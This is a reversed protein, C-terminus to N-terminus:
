HLLYEQSAQLVVKTDNKYVFAIIASNQIMWEANVNYNYSKSKVDSATAQGDLIEEGWAGNIADRLVHNHVYFEIDQEGSPLSYDKQWSVVSDEVFYVSLMLNENMADIFIVDVDVELDRTNSNYSTNINIDIVPEQEILEVAAAIWYSQGLTLDGAYESRNIIASPYESPGFFESITNGDETKYDYTYEGSSNTQAFLGTHISVPIIHDCYLEKLLEITEDGGPCYGCKHGTFEEILIQKIPIPLTADGCKGSYEIFPEEIEDCSGIFLIGFALILLKIERM